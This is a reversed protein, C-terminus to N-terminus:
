QFYQTIDPQDSVDEIATRADCVLTKAGERDNVYNEGNWKRETAVKLGRLICIKGQEVDGGVHNWLRLPGVEVGDM